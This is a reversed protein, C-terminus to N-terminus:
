TEFVGLNGDDNNAKENSEIIIGKSAAERQSPGKFDEKPFMADDWDEYDDLPISMPGPKYPQNNVWKDCDTLRNRNSNRTNTTNAGGFQFQKKHWESFGPHTQVDEVSLKSLRYRGEHNERTANENWM